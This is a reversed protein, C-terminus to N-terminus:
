GKLYEFVATANPTDLELIERSIQNIVLEACCLNYVSLDFAENRGHAKWTITVLGNDHVKKVRKETTLQRLYENTYGAALQTWGDPYDTDTDRWERNLWLSLQNKYSDVYIEVLQISYNKLSVLRYKEKTKATTALGKLPYIVGEGYKECFRYVLDTKDGDGSDILMYQIQRGCIFEDRINILEQWCNDMSNSTNGKIIRHDIGWNRFRDGWAKIEVELRDDQVDVACTLFLAGEPLTNNPLNSDILKSVAFESVGVTTDVFPLGLHNNYFVKLKAPDNGADIFEAALQKWSFTSSMLGSVHYSVFNPKKSKATPKWYGKQLMEEKYFEPILEGCHKCKYRVSNYNGTKCESADFILGYPKLIIGDQEIGKEDPYEGGNKVYFELEQYAGCFPCPVQYKNQDGKKFLKYIASSHELTPTSVYGIKRSKAYGITRSVALDIPSGDPKLELPYSDIEDLFLKEISFMRLATANNAGVFRIFGGLFDIQEATDGQKRSNKNGTEAVIKKRLGSNDILNSIRIDKFKQLLKLDGTVYMMPSGDVAISYGIASEFVGSTVASQASKMIAIEQVPDNKSFKDAIDKTYPVNSYRFPGPKSSVKKTLIRNQEAWESVKLNINIKAFDLALDVIRNIQECIMKM